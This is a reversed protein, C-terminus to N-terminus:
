VERATECTQHDRESVAEGAIVRGWQFKRPVEAISDIGASQILERAKTKSWSGGAGATWEAWDVQGFIVTPCISQDANLARSKSTLRANRVKVGISAEQNQEPLSVAVRSATKVPV